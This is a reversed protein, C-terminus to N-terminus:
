SFLSFACRHLSHVFHLFLCDFNWSFSFAFCGPRILVTILITWPNYCGLWPSLWADTMCWPSTEHAAQLIPIGV